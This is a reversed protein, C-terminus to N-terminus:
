PAAILCACGHNMSIHHRPQVGHLPRNGIYGRALGDDDDVVLVALVLAVQDEGGLLGSWFEDREHDAVRGPVQAHWKVARDAVPKSQQRHIRDVLVLM